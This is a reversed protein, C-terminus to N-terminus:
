QQNIGMLKLKDSVKLYNILDLLHKFILSCEIPKPNDVSGKAKNYYSGDGQYQNSINWKLIIRYNMGWFQGEPWKIAPIIINRNPDKLERFFFNKNDMILRHSLALSEIVKMTQTETTYFSSNSLQKSLKHYITELSSSLNNINGWIVSLVRILKFIEFDNSMAFFRGVTYHVISHGQTPKRLADINKELVTFDSFELDDSFKYKVMQRLTLQDFKLAMTLVLNLIFKLGQSFHLDLKGEIFSYVAEANGFDFYDVSFFKDMYGIFDVDQGYKHHFINKINNVDCVIIVKDFGFKNKQGVEDNHLSLINLIRFIHEPDLRDLDDVVLVNKKQTSINNLVEGIFLTIFDQEFPSGKKLQLDKIFKEIKINSANIKDEFKKKFDSYKDKIANYVKVGLELTKIHETGIEIGIGSADIKSALPLLARIVQGPSSLLYWAFASLDDFKFDDEFDINDDLILHFLIDAKILEFVDENSSVSYKVPSIFIANYEDNNKFFQKLFFTKGIGFKGNLIIRNNNKINLHSYFQSSLNDVPIIENM